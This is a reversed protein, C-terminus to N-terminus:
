DKLKKGECDPFKAAYFHYTVATINGEDNKIFTLQAGNLKIFFTTQSEPYIDFAGQIVNQGLAQGTLQEGERWITLKM